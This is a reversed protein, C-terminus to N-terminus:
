LTTRRGGLRGVRDGLGLHLAVFFLGALLLLTLWGATGALGVVFAILFLLAAVLALM